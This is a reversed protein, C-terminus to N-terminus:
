RRIVVIRESPTAIYQGVLEGATDGAVAASGGIVAGIYFAMFSFTAQSLGGSAHAVTGSYVGGVLYKNTNADNNTAVVYGSTATNNTMTEATNLWVAKTTGQIDVQMFCEVYRSGRRLAVDLTMRGPARDKFIRVAVMEPDNRLVAVADYATTIQNGAASGSMSLNFLKGHYAGSSYVSVNLQGSSNSSVNVLGNDLSWGSPTMTVNTGSRIVGDQLLQSVGTLYATAAIGWRYSTVPQPGIHVTQAGQSGTRTMTTGPSSTVGQYYGYHGIPPAHFRTGGLGFNNPRNFTSLGNVGTFRSEIDIENDTGLFTLTMTWTVTTVEGTADFVDTTCDTVQYFGNHDNHDRFIVPVTYGKLGVLDERRQRLQAVTLPPMSEQGTLVMARDVLGLSSATDTVLYTERLTLQGVQITGYSTSM